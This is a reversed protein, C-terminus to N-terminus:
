EFYKRIEGYVYDESVLWPVSTLSVSLIGDSYAFHGEVGNVLFSGQEGDFVVTGEERLRALAAQAKEETIEIKM